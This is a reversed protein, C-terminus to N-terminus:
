ARSGQAARPVRGVAGRLAAGRRHGGARHLRPHPHARVRGAGSRARPHLLRRRLRPPHRRAPLGGHGGGGRSRRGQPHDRRPRPSPPAACTSRCRARPSPASAASSPACTPTTSTGTTSSPSPMARWGSASITPSRPWRACRPVGPRSCRSSRTTGSKRASLWGTSSRRWRVAVAPGAPETRPARRALGAAGVVPFGGRRRLVLRRRPGPGRRRVRRARPLAPGSRAVDRRTRSPPTSPSAPALVHGADETAARLTDLAPWAREPNVHDATVPSVGGWDDIGAELLPALDDSLNPPAQIHVDPPVVLRAVAIAWLLDDPPLTRGAM